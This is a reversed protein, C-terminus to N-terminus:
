PLSRAQPRCGKGTATVDVMSPRSGFASTASPSATCSGPAAVLSQKAEARLLGAFERKFGLRPYEEAPAGHNPRRLRHHRPRRRRAQRLRACSPYSTSRRASSPQRGGTDATSRGLLSATRRYHQTWDKHPWQQMDRLPASRDFQRASPERAHFAAARTVSSRRWRHLLSRLDSRAGASVRNSTRLSCRATM